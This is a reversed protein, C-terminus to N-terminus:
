SFKVGRLAAIVDGPQCNSNRLQDRFATLLPLFAAPCACEISKKWTYDDTLTALKVAAVDKPSSHKWPLHGGCAVYLLVYFLSEVDHQLVRTLILMFRM